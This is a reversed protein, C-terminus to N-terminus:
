GGRHTARGQIRFPDYTLGKTIYRSYSTHNSYYRVPLGKMLEKSVGLGRFLNKVYVFHLTDLCHVAYGIIQEPDEETTAVIVKATGLCAKIQKEMGPFYVKKSPRYIWNGSALYCNLWTALLFNLDDETGPRLVISMKPKNLLEDYEAISAEKM